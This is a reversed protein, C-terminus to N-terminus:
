CYVAIATYNDMDKGRGRKEVEQAMLRVWQAADRSKKMLACMKKKTCHEWFGDSCLLFATCENLPIADLLEYQPNDWAIGMVRLLRNRDPHKRIKRERIDGSIALMQPVSHDVTRKIVKNRAFVYVRTDGVFGIRCVDGAIFLAACTTKMETRAKRKKQEEMITDQAAQMTDSLFMDNDAIGAEFSSKFVDVAIQSAVEGQGHGGLGDAVVFLSGSNNEAITYADENCERNGIRTIHACDLAYRGKLVRRAPSCQAAVTRSQKM